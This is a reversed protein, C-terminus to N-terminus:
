TATRKNLTKQGEDALKKLRCIWADASEFTMRNGGEHINLLVAYHSQLKVSEELALRLWFKEEDM